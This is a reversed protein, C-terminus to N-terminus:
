SANDRPISPTEIHFACNDWLAQANRRAIKRSGDWDFATRNLGHQLANAIAVTEELLVTEDGYKVHAVSAETAVNPEPLDLNHAIDAHRFKM